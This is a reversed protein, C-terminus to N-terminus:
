CGGGISNRRMFGGMFAIFKSKQANALEAEEQALKIKAMSSAMEEARERSTRQLEHLAEDRASVLLSTFFVAIVCLAVYIQLWIFYERLTYPGWFSGDQHVNIAYFMVFMQQSIAVLFIGLAGGILNLIATVFLILPFTPALISIGKLIWEDSTF